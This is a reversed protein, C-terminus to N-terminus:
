FWLSQVLLSLRLQGRHSNMSSGTEFSTGSDHLNTTLALTNPSYRTSDTDDNFTYDPLTDAGRTDPVKKDLWTLQQMGDLLQVACM